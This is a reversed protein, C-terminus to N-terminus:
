PHHECLLRAAARPQWTRAWRPPRDCVAPGALGIPCDVSTDRGQRDPGRVATRDFMAGPAPGEAGRGRGTGQDRSGSSGESASEGEWVGMAARRAKRRIHRADTWDRLRAIGASRSGPLATAGWVPIPASYARYRSQTPLTGPGRLCGIRHRCKSPDVGLDLKTAPARALSPAPASGLKSTIGGPGFFRCLRYM